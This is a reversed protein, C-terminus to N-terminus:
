QRVAYLLFVAVLAPRHHHQPDGRSIGRARLEQPEPPFGIFADAEGKAFLEMADGSAPVVWDIDERPDLGVYAALISLYIHASSYRAKIGLRRGKLDSLTQIPERAFLEFCGVHAGGVATVRVGTDLQYLLTGAFMSDFDLDGREVMEVTPLGLGATVYEIHTFGEARLYAEVTYLPAFCISPARKLRIRTTEPPAEHALSGPAGLMGAAGAASLSALFDRRSQMFHM